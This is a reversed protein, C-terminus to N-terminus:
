RIPGLETVRFEIDKEEFSLIDRKKEEERSVLQNPRKSVRQRKRWNVHDREEEGKWM